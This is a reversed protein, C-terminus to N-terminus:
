SEARVAIVGGFRGLDARPFDFRDGERDGGVVAFEAPGVAVAASRETTLVRRSVPDVEGGEVVLREDEVCVTVELNQSTYRGAYRRVEGGDARIPEPVPSELGLERLLRRIAVSGRAGNTLAAFALMEGPVLLLLSQFGAVSGSHAVIQRCDRAERLMWGLGYAGGPRRAAPEQMSRAVAGDRLHHEAFSLLDDVTSWLGGAPRRARPYHEVGLPSGDAAHGRAAAAGPDDFTSASLGFPELVREALVREYTTGATRAAAAGVLRFGTNSYSSLGGPAVPLAVLPAAELYRALAGDDEGFSEMPVDSESALGGSHSLLLRPTTGPWGPVIPEDLPLGLSLALTATFPKTVSAIRFPTGRRVALGPRARDLEGDVWVTREGGSLIGVAMGPVGVAARADRL